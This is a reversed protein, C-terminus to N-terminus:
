KGLFGLEGLKLFRSGLLSSSLHSFRQDNCDGYMVSEPRSFHPTRM